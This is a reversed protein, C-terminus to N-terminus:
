SAGLEPHGPSMSPLRARRPRLLRAMLLVGGGALALFTLTRFSTVLDKAQIMLMGSVLFLLVTAMEPRRRLRGYIYNESLQLFLGLIVGVAILGAVGGRYWADAVLALEVSTGWNVMFGLENLMWNRPLETDSIGTLNLRPLFKTVMDAPLRIVGEQEFALEEPIRTIVSHTSNSILRRVTGSVVSATDASSSWDSGPEALREMTAQGTRGRQDGRIAGGVFMAFSFVAAASALLGVLKRRPLPEAWAYGVLVLLPPLLADLRSGAIVLLSSVPVMLVFAIHCLLLRRRLGVGVFLHVATFYGAFIRGAYGVAPHVEGSLFLLFLRAALVTIGLIAAAKLFPAGFGRFTARGSSPEDPAVRSVLAAVMVAVGHLLVSCGTVIWAGEHHSHVGAYTAYTVGEDLATAVILLAPQMAALLLAMRLLGLPRQGTRNMMARHLALLAGTGAVYALLGTRAPSGLVAVLVLGLLAVMALTATALVEARANTRPVGM